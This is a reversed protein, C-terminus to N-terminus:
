LANGFPNEVFCALHAGSNFCSHSMSDPDEGGESLIVKHAVSDLRDLKIPANLEKIRQRQPFSIASPGQFPVSCVLDGTM